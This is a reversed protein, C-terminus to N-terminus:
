TRLPIYYSKGGRVDFGYGKLLLRMDRWSKHQEIAFDELADHAKEIDPFPGGPIDIRGLSGSYVAYVEVM